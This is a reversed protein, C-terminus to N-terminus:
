AGRSRMIYEFVGADPEGVRRQCLVAKGQEWMRMAHKGAQHVKVDHERDIRLFGTHYVQSNSM